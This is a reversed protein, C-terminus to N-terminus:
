IFDHKYFYSFIMILVNIIGIIVLPVGYSRRRHVLTIVALVLFIITTYVAPFLQFADAFRGELVLAMARQAGCGFCDIGFIKKTPCPLMWDELNM